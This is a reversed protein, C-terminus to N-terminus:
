VIAGVDLLLGVSETATRVELLPRRSCFFLNFFLLSLYLFGNKGQNISGGEAALSFRAVCVDTKSSFIMSKLSEIAMWKIPLLGGRSM